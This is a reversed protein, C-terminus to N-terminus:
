HLIIQKAAVSLGSLLIRPIPMDPQRIATFNAQPRDGPKKPRTEAVTIKQVLNTFFASIKSKEAYGFIDIKLGRYDALLSGNLHGEHVNMTAFSRSLFGKLKIGDDLQFFSNMEALDQHALDIEIHDDNSQAFPDFNAHLQCLGSKELQCNAEIEVPQNQLYSKTSLHSLSANIKTGHIPAAGEALQHVYSM